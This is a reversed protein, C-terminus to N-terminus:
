QNGGVIEDKLREIEEPTLDHNSSLEEDFRRYAAELRMEEGSSTTPAPPGSRILAGGYLAEAMGERNATPPEPRDVDGVLIRRTTDVVLDLDTNKKEPVETTPAGTSARDAIVVLPSAEPRSAISTRTAPSCGVTILVASISVWFCFIKLFLTRM